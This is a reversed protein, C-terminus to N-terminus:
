ALGIWPSTTAKRQRGAATTPRVLAPPAPDRELDVPPASWSHCVASGPDSLFRVQAGPVLGRKHERCGWRRCCWARVNIVGSGIITLFAFTLTADLAYLHAGCRCEEPAAKQDVGV